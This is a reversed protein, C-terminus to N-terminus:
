VTEPEESDENQEFHENEYDIQGCVSAIRPYEINKNFEIKINVPEEKLIANRASDDM